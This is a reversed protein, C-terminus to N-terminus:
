PVLFSLVFQHYFNFIFLLTDRGQKLYHEYPSRLLCNTQHIEGMKVFRAENKVVHDALKLFTEYSILNM